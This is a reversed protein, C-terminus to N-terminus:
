FLWETAAGEPLISYVLLFHHTLDRSLIKSVYFHLVFMLGVELIIAAALTSPPPASPLPCSPKPRLLDCVDAVIPGM